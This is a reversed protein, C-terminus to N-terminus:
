AYNHYQLDRSVPEMKSFGFFKARYRRFWEMSFIYVHSTTLCEGHPILNTFISTMETKMIVDYNSLYLAQNSVYHFFIRQLQQDLQCLIKVM